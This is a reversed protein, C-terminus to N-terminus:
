GLGEVLKAGVWGVRGRGRGGPQLVVDVHRAHHLRPHLLQGCQRALQRQAPGVAHQGRSRPPGGTRGPAGRSPSGRKAAQCRTVGAKQPWGVVGVLVGWGRLGGQM